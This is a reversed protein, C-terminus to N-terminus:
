RGVIGAALHRDDAAVHEACAAILRWGAEDDVGSRLRRLVAVGLAQHRADALTTPEKHKM